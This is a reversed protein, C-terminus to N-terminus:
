GLECMWNGGLVCVCVCVCLAEREREREGVCCIKRLVSVVCSGDSVLFDSLTESPTSVLCLSALPIAVICYLMIFIRATTTTPTFDGYGVTTFSVVCFYLSNAFTFDLDTSFKSSRSQGEVLHVLLGGLLTLAALIIFATVLLTLKGQMIFSALRKMTTVDTKLSSVVLAFAPLTPRASSPCPYCFVLLCDM